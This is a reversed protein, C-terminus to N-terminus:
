KVQLGMGLKITPHLKYTSENKPLESINSFCMKEGEKTSRSCDLIRKDKTIIICFEMEDENESFAVLLTENPNLGIAEICERVDLWETRMLQTLEEIEQLYLDM